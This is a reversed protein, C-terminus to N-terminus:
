HPLGLKELLLIVTDSLKTRKVIEEGTLTNLLYADTVQKFTKIIQQLSKATKIELYKSVALAMFCILLHVKIVEEKFHFMPRMELDSKAIRFAQEIHWLNHYCDIITQDDAEKPLLNTYYGKIGLLFKTKEILKTNLEYEAKDTKLFKTRKITAPDELAKEAKKIQKDMERKDKSYRKQSFDCILQGHATIIRVTTGQKQNLKQSIEQQLSSSLNGMRAGVIYALGAKQLVAVNDLSIMAADAVVTLKQINYRQKFNEIVPVLTHGEFKNGAFIEYSVPFGNKNVMLGIVVQPQGPKNDKSFGTKRFDDSEFSEFYLTTVDYFVLSFDFAFEKVALKVTLSEVTDKLKILRPLDEYFSQRRHRIGFYEKLLKLSKLKSAPEIIRMIVLDNLLRSGFSTFKFRALLKYLVEYMFTYRIGLYECNSVLALTISSDKIGSQAFLSKQKTTKEIWDLAVQWLVKLDENTKASGIHAVVIRKRNIYEVVQVASAGSATKTKRIHYM